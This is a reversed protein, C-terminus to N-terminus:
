RYRRLQTPPLSRRTAARLSGQPNRYRQTLTSGRTEPENCTDSFVQRVSPSGASKLVEARFASQGCRSPNRAGDPTRFDGLVSGAPRVRKAIPKEAKPQDRPSSF